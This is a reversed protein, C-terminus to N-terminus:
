VNGGRSICALPHGASARRAPAKRAETARRSRPEDHPHPSITRTRIPPPADRRTPPAPTFPPYPYLHRPAAQESVGASEAHQQLYNLAQNELVSLNPSTPSIYPLHLPSIPSIDPAIPLAQDELM